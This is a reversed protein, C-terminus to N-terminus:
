KNETLLESVHEGHLSKLSCARATGRLPLIRLQHQLYGPVEEFIWLLKSMSAGGNREKRFTVFILVSNHETSRETGVRKVRVPLTKRSM